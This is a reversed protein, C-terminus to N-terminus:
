TNTSATFDGAAPSLGSNNLSVDVPRSDSVSNDQKSQTQTTLPVTVKGMVVTGMVILPLTPAGSKNRVILYGDPILIDDTHDETVAAGTERWGVNSGNNIFYYSKSAALNIGPDAYDPFLLQTKIALTSTSPTFSVNSQSAPFLTGM